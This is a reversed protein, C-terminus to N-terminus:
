PLRIVAFGATKLDPGSRRWRRDRTRRRNEAAPAVAKRRRRRVRRQDVAFEVGPRAFERSLDRLLELRHRAIVFLTRQM